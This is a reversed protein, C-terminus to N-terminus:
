FEGASRLQEIEVSVHVSGPFTRSAVSRAVADHGVIEIDRTYVTYSWDNFRHDIDDHRKLRPARIATPPRPHPGKMEAGKRSVFAKIEAVTEDLVIRDGSQLSLRTVFTM